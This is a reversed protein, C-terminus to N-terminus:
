RMFNEPLELGYYLKPFLQDEEVQPTAWCTIGGFMFLPLLEELKGRLDAENVPSSMMRESAREGKWECEWLSPGIGLNSIRTCAILDKTPLFHM